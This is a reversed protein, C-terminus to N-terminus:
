TPGAIRFSRRLAHAHYEAGDVIVSMVVAAEGARGHELMWSVVTMLGVPHHDDVQLFETKVAIRPDDARGSAIRRAVETLGDAALALITDPHPPPSAAANFAPAVASRAEEVPPAACAVVVECLLHYERGLLRIKAQARAVTM